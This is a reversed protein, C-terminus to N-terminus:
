GKFVTPHHTHLSLVYAPDIHRDEKPNTSDTAVSLGIDLLIGIADAVGKSTFSEPAEVEILLKITPFM